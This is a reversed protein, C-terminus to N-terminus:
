VQLHAVTAAATRAKENNEQRARALPAFQKCPHYIHGDQRFVRHGRRILIRGGKQRQETKSGEGRDTM